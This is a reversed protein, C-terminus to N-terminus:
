HHALSSFVPPWLLTTAVAIGLLFVALVIRHNWERARLLRHLLLWSALWVVLALSEKGSYPGIGEAGPMWLKGIEHVGAKFADSVETGANVVALTLVGFMAGLLAAQAMGSKEVDAKAAM